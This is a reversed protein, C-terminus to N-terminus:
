SRGMHTSRRLKAFVPQTADVTRREDGAKATPPFLATPSPQCIRKHEVVDSGDVVGTALLAFPHKCTNCRLYDASSAPSQGRVRGKLERQILAYDFEEADQVAAVPPEDDLEDLLDVM